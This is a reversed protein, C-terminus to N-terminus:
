SALLAQASGINQGPHSITNAADMFARVWAFVDTEKVIRRLRTMRERREEMSMECARMITDAVGEIDHPNVLLAGRHLQAAAGAFESLILTGNEGICAACYEKAVLNMGDKLPTVFAIDSTRYYAALEVPTLNSYVYWVPVWKGPRMFEGNIKGVLQEIKIKLDHYEPIDARSPVVVQILSVKTQLHPYRVLMNHFARLRDPIGKTYDLRDVGLLVKKNALLAHLEKTKETVLTSSAQAAMAGYDIGIPFAGVCSSHTAHHITVLTEHVEVRVDNLLARVCQVFNRRDRVTQFGVLDYELIAKLLESRWPLKSFIDLSPFPIHLFFGVTASCGFSRLERGVNMLHYDHVWIFDESTSAHATVEAFKRNVECYTRWYDPDFNCMSGFDHFLPWIIENSFGEYFNHIEQANLGVSKISYDGALSVEFESPPPEGATGTWGIWTGGAARLVPTMASILGGSGPEARWEGEAGKHFVYPLRNSVMVLKRSGQDKVINQRFDSTKYHIEEESGCLLM